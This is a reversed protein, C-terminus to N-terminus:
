TDLRLDRRHGAPREVYSPVARAVLNNVSAVHDAHVPISAPLPPGVAFAGADIVEGDRDMDATSAIARFGGNDAETIHGQVTSM